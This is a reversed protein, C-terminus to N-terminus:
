FTCGRWLKLEKHSNLKIVLNKIKKNKIKKALRVRSQEYMALLSLRYAVRKKYLFM